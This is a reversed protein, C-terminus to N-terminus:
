SFFRSRVQNITKSFVNQILKHNWHRIEYTIKSWVTSMKWVTTWSLTFYKDLTHKLIKGAEFYAMLSQNHLCTCNTWMTTLYYDLLYAPLPTATPSCAAIHAHRDWAHGLHSCKCLKTKQSGRYPGMIDWTPGMATQKKKTTLLCFHAHGCFVRKPRGYPTKLAATPCGSLAQTPSINTKRVWVNGCNVWVQECSHAQINDIILFSQRSMHSQFILGYFYSASYLQCIYFRLLIYITIYLVRSTLM